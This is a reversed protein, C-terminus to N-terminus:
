REVKRGDPDVYTVRQTTRLADDVLQRADALRGRLRAIERDKHILENANAQANRHLRAIEADKGALDAEWQQLVEMTIEIRM